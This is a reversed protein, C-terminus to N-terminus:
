MVGPPSIGASCFSRTAWASAFGASPVGPKIAGGTRTTGPRAVPRQRKPHMLGAALAVRRRALWQRRASGAREQRRRLWAARQVGLRLREAAALKAADNSRVGSRCLFAVPRDTEVKERLQTWFASTAIRRRITTGSSSSAGPVYGVLDREALTRTDVLAIEGQKFLGLNGGAHPSRPVALGGGEGESRARALFAAHDATDEPPM